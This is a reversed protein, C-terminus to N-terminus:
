FFRKAYELDDMEQISFSDDLNIGPMPRGKVTSVRPLKRERPGVSRREDVVRRLGDEILATLLRGEETTPLKFLAPRSAGLVGSAAM